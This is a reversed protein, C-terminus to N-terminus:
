NMSLHMEYVKLLQNAIRSWSLKDEVLNRSKFGM